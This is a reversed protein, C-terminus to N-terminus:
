ALGALNDFMDKRAVDAMARYRALAALERGDFPQGRLAAERFTAQDLVEVPRLRSTDGFVDTLVAEIKSTNSPCALFPTDTAISLLVTHFRGTVALSRRALRGAFAAPDSRSRWRTAAPSGPWRQRSAEVFGDWRTRRPKMREHHAGTAVAFARLARATERLVSDTVIIGDRAELPMTTRLGLSLDPVMQARIGFGDLYRLSESERVWVSTFGRLAEVAADDLESVSANVLHIPLDHRRALAPLALLDRTRQREASHHITGEGNVILADPRRRLVWREHASWDTAVPWLFAPAIGRADLEAVMTGMVATCGYHGSVSTDNFLGVRKVASQYERGPGGAIEGNAM